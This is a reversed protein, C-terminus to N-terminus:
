VQGFCCYLSSAKGKKSVTPKSKRRGFKKWGKLAPAKEEPRSASNLRKVKDYIAALKSEDIEDRSNIFPKSLQEGYLAEDFRDLDESSVSSDSQVTTM